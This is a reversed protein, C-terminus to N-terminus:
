SDHQGRNEVIHRIPEGGSTHDIGDTFLKHHRGLHVLAAQADHFKIETGEKKPNIGSILHAKGDAVLMPLNVAGDYTIYDAYAARAQEALRMLVEDASMAANELRFKIEASVKENQLVRYAQSEANAYNAARASEAANWTRLYTEIFIKQKHSLGSVGVSNSV